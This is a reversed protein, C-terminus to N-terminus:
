KMQLPIDEGSMTNNELWYHNPHRNTTLVGDPTPQGGESPSNTSYKIREGERM